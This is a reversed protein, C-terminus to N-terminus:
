RGQTPQMVRDIPNVLGSLLMLASLSSMKLLCSVLTDKPLSQIKPTTPTENM